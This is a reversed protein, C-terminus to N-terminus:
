DDQKKGRKTLAEKFTDVDLDLNDMRIFYFRNIICRDFNKTDNETIEGSQPDVFYVTGDHVEAVSSHGGGYIWSWGVKFRAGNGAALMKELTYKKVKDKGHFGPRIVVGGADQLLTNLGMEGWVDMLDRYGKNGLGDAEVDLGRRRFEYAITCYTCNYHYKDDNKTYNPNINKCCDEFDEDDDLLEIDLSNDLLKEYKSIDSNLQEDEEVNDDSFWDLAGSETRKFFQSFMKRFSDDRDQQERFRRRLEYYNEVGFPAYKKERKVLDSNKQSSSDASTFEGTREDHYKNGKQNNSKIAM